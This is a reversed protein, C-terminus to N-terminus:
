LFSGLVELVGMPLGNLVDKSDGRGRLLALQLRTRQREARGLAERLRARAEIGLGRGALTGTGDAPAATCDSPRRAFKDLSTPDAGHRLLSMVVQERAGNPGQASLCCVSHLPTCQESDRANPDAGFGLLLGVGHVSGEGAALHLPCSLSPGCGRNPDAGHQLLLEALRYNADGHQMIGQVARSLPHLGAYPEHLLEKPGHQLLLAVAEFHKMDLAAHLAYDGESAGCHGQGGCVHSRCFAFSLLPVSNCEIADEVDTLVEARERDM